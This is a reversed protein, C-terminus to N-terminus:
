RFEKVVGEVVEDLDEDQLGLLDMAFGERTTWDGDIAGLAFVLDENAETEGRAVRAQNTRIFEEADIYKAEWKRIGEGNSAYARELSRLVDLQSVCFSQIYIIRNRVAEEGGGAGGPQLQLVKVVAEAVRHLTATSSRMTGDDLIDATRNRLDFHLFNERLGWDFFHGCVISTWSFDNDDGGALEQLKERVDAKKKFIPVLEQARRTTSDCSGYDAPIIKRMGPTSAAAEAIRIQSAGGEGDSGPRTAVVVAHQGAFAARLSPLSLDDSITVRTYASAPIHLPPSSTSSERQAITVNFKHPSTTTTLASLIETGLSGTAGILIVNTIPAPSM